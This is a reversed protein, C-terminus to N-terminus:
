VETKEFILELGADILHAIEPRNKKLQDLHQVVKPLTTQNKEKQLLESIEVSLLWDNPHTAKVLEFIVDLNVDTLKGERLSRVKQYL